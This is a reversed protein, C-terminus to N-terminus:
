KGSNQTNAQIGGATFLASFLVGQPLLAKKMSLEVSCSM